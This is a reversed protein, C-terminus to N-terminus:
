RSRRAAADLRALHEEDGAGVHAAFGSVHPLDRQDRQKRVAARKTGACRARLDARDVLDERADAGGVIKGASARGEHDLHRFGGVDQVM